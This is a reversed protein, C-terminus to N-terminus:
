QHGRNAIGQQSSGIPYERNGQLITHGIQLYVSGVNCVNRVKHLGMYMKTLGRVTPVYVTGYTNVAICDARVYEVSIYIVM